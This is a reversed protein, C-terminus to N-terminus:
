QRRRMLGRDMPQISAGVARTPQRAYPCCKREGLAIHEALDGCRIIASEGSLITPVYVLSASLGRHHGLSASAQPVVPAAQLTPSHVAFRDAVSWQRDM